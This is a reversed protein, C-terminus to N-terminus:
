ILSDIMVLKEKNYSFLFYIELLIPYVNRKRNTQDIVKVPTINKHLYNNKLANNGENLIKKVINLSHLM